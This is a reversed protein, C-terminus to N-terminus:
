REDQLSNGLRVCRYRDISHLVMRYQLDGPHSCTVLVSVESGAVLAMAVVTPVIAQAQAPVAPRQAPVPQLRAGVVRRQPAEQLRVRSSQPSDGVVDVGVVRRQVQAIGASM